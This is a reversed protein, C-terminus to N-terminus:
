KTAPEKWLGTVKAEMKKRAAEPTEPLGDANATKSPDKGGNVARRAAASAEDFNSATLTELASDFVPGIYAENAANIKDAMKPFAKLAVKKRLDLDTLTSVTKKEAEDLHAVCVTELDARAKAGAQIKSPLDAIQAKLTGVESKLTDREGTLGDLNATITKKEAVLGTITGELKKIHNLVEPAQEKYDIGDLSITVPM